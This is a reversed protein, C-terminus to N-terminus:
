LTEYVENNLLYWLCLNLYKSSMKRIFKIVLNVNHLAYYM